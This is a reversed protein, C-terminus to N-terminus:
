LATIFRKNQEATGITVRICTPLRYNDAPRVIIGQMLLKNQVQRCNQKTDIVIFNTYSPIYELGLRKLEGYLYKKGEENVELTKKYFERDDLAACGAKQALVSVDFPPRVKYMINILSEQAIGYGLRVGALGYIKSFSRILILNARGKRILSLIDPLAKTPAFDAYVEDHVVFINEPVQRYFQEFEERKIICGTPNNPNSLWIIKTKPTIKELVDKLDIEHGKMKSEVVKGRLAQVTIEYYPFTVRPIIAEDDQDILAMNITYIVGDAGNGVIIMNADINFERALASRLEACSTEPYMFALHAQTQIAKFALPSVGLPNENSAMKIFDIGSAEQEAEYISKGPEYPKIKLTGSNIRKELNM